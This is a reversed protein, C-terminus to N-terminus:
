TFVAVSVANLGSKTLMTAGTGGSAVALTASLSAASGSTNQTGSANVGPLDINASGNFSVGGITRATELVTADAATGSTDQNGAANVGPL